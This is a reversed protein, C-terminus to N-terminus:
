RKTLHAQHSQGTVHNISWRGETSPRQQNPWRIWLITEM